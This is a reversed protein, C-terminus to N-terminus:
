QNTPKPNAERLLRSITQVARKAAKLCKAALLNASIKGKLRQRCTDMINRFEEDKLFEDSSNPKSSEMAVAKRLFSNVLPGMLGLEHELASLFRCVSVVNLPSDDEIEPSSERRHRDPMRMTSSLSESRYKKKEPEFMEQEKFYPNFFPNHRKLSRKMDTMAEEIERRSMNTKTRLLRKFEEAYMNKIERTWTRIKYNLNSAEERHYSLSFHSTKVSEEWLENYDEIESLYNEVFAELEASSINLRGKSELEQTIVRAIEIKVKAIPDEKDEVCIEFPQVPSPERSQKAEPKPKHDHLLKAIKQVALKVAKMKKPDIVSLSIVGKLEERCTDMINRFEEDKLLEESSNPKSSEMKVSKLLLNNVSSGMLGLEPELASLFRCVSVVNLPSDDEIEPSSERRHRDPMRMTSTLSESRYKKKEPELMEQDDDLLLMSHRKPSHPKETLAEEAEKRSLNAKIRLTEKVKQLEETHLEDMRNMWFQIWEPKYDYDNPNLGESQVKKYKKAWFSKWEESYKPHNEPIKQYDRFATELKAVQAELDNKYKEACLTKENMLLKRHKREPETLHIGKVSRQIPSLTRSSSSFQILSISDLSSIMKLQSDWDVVILHHHSDSTKITVHTVNSSKENIELSLGVHKLIVLYSSEYKEFSFCHSFNKM